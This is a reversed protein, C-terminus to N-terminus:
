RTHNLGTDTIDFIVGDLYMLTGDAAFIGTGREHVQRIGGDRHVIRYDINYPRRTQVGDNVANFVHVVDDQHIISTFTRVANLIFDSAAYGSIMEIQGSIFEMTWAADNACRYVAGPINSVLTEFRARDRQYKQERVICEAQHEELARRAHVREIDSRMIQRVLDENAQKLSAVAEELEHVREQLDETSLPTDTDNM